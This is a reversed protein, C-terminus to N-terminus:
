DLYNKALIKEANELTKDYDHANLAAFMAQRSERDGGYPSYASTETYALRLEKFDVSADSKKVSELLVEYPNKAPAQPQAVALPALLMLLIFLLISKSFMILNKIRCNSPLLRNRNSM